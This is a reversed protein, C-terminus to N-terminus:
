GRTTRAETRARDKRKSRARDEHRGQRQGRERDIRARSRAAREGERERLDKHSRAARGRRDSKNKPRGTSEAVSTAHSRRRVYSSSVNAHSRRTVYHPPSEREAESYTIDAASRSQEFALQHAAKAASIFVSTQRIEPVKYSKSRVSSAFVKLSTIHAKHQLACCYNNSM